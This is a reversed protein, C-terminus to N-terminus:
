HKNNHIWQVYFPVNIFIGEDYIECTQQEQLCVCNSFSSLGFLFFQGNIQM